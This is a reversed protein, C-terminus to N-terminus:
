GLAASTKIMKTSHRALRRRGLSQIKVVAHMDVKYKEVLRKKSAKLRIAELADPVGALPHIQDSTANIRHEHLHLLVCQVLAIAAQGCVM